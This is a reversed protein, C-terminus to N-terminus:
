GQVQFQNVLPQQEGWFSRDKAKDFSKDGDVDHYLSAWLATGAAPAKSFEVKVNRHDGAALPLTALPEATAKGSADMGYVVLYGPSPLYAYAVDISKGNLKQNFVIIDPPTPSGGTAAAGDTKVALAPAAALTAVALAAATAKLTLAHRAFM